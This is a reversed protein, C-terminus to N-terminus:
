FCAASQLLHTFVAHNQYVTLAQESLNKENHYRLSVKIVTGQPWSNFFLKGERSQLQFDLWTRMGKRWFTSYRFDVTCHLITSSGQRFSCPFGHLHGFDSYLFLHSSRISLLSLTHALGPTNIHSHSQCKLGKGPPFGGEDWGQLYIQAQTPQQKLVSWSAKETKKNQM